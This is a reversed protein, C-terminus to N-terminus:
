SWCKLLLLKTSKFQKVCLTRKTQDQYNKWKKKENSQNYHFTVSNFEFVKFRRQLAKIGGTYENEETHM